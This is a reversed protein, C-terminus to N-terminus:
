TALEVLRHAVAHGVRSYRQSVLELDGTVFTIDGNTQVFVPLRAFKEDGHGLFAASNATQHVRDAREGRNRQLVAHRKLTEHFFEGILSKLRTPECFIWINSVC